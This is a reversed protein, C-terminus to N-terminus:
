TEVMEVLDRVTGFTSTVGAAMAPTCRIAINTEAKTQWQMNVPCDCGGRKLPIIHDIVYGSRGHPYGSMRMVEPLREVIM